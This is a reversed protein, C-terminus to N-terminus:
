DGNFAFTHHHLARRTSSISICNFLTAMLGRLAAKPLIFQGLRGPLALNNKFGIDVAREVRFIDAALQLLLLYLDIPLWYRNVLV